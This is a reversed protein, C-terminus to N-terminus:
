ARGLFRSVGRRMRLAVDYLPTSRAFAMCSRPQGGFGAKFKALGPYQVPASGLDVTACGRDLAQLVGHWLLLSNPSVNWHDKDSANLFYTAAAGHFLFSSVAIMRGDLFAGYWQSRGSESLAFVECLFTRSDPPNGLRTSTQVVLRHAADFDAPGLARVQVGSKEAKRVANREKRDVRQTWLADASLGDLDLAYKIADVRRFGRGALGGCEAEFPSGYPLLVRKYGAPFDLERVFADLLPRVADTRRPDAIPGGYSLPLSLVKHVQFKSVDVVPMAAVLDPGDHVSFYYPSYYPFSKTLVSLWWPAAFKWVSHADVFANWGDPPQRSVVTRLSSM